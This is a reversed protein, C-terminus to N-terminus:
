DDSPHDDGIPLSDGYRAGMKLHEAKENEEPPRAHEPTLKPFRTSLNPRLSQM